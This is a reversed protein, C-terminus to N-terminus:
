SSTPPDLEDVPPAFEPYYLAMNAGCLWWARYILQRALSEDFRDFSTPVLALSTGRHESRDPFANVFEAARTTRPEIETALNFLLGDRLGQQFDAILFRTRLTRSQRYLSANARKMHGVIPISQYRGIRFVGGVTLAITFVGDNGHHDIAELGTNDYAGGDMLSVTGEGGCPFDLDDLTVPSFPGPVAASAAAALALPIKAEAMPIHGNVYDGVIDREFTFRTGTALNAANIIWRVEPDLQDMTIDGLFWRRYALALLDTRNSDLVLRWINRLLHNALSRQTIGQLLPDVVADDVAQNTYGESRVRPWNKALMANALSGGSVSSVYRLNGLLGADSLYRLVGLASLTARFGGGSMTIGITPGTNPATPRAPELRSACPVPKLDIHGDHDPQLQETSSM